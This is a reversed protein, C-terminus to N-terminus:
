SQSTGPEVRVSEEEILSHLHIVDSPMHPQTRIGPTVRISECGVNKKVLPITKFFWSVTTM